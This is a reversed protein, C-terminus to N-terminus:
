RSKWSYFLYIRSETRTNFFKKLFIKNEDVVLAIKDNTENLQKILLSANADAPNITRLQKRSDNICTEVSDIMQKIDADSKAPIFKNNYYKIFQNLLNNGNNSAEVAANYKLEFKKRKIESIEKRNNKLYDLILTNMIRNKEIRYDSAILREVDSQKEYVAISDKFNFYSKKNDPKMETDYFAANSVPYDSLQWLPDFPMHSEIIVEPRTKYYVFNTQKIFKGHQVWGSGWTPDIMVWKSDILAACWTHPLTDVVGKEKTYGSVLFSKIGVKHAIESFLVAYDFCLGKKTKLTKDIAEAHNLYTNKVFMNDTDYGINNAIWIFIARSKASEGSFRANIYDAIGQASHVSAEPIRHMAKGISRYNRTQSIAGVGIGICLVLSVLKRM